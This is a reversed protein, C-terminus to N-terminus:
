KGQELEVTLCSGSERQLRGRFSETCYREIRLGPPWEDVPWDAKRWLAALFREPEPLEKWVAPLFTARTGSAQVVLGDRGPVLLHILEQRSAVKLPELRGILSVTISLDELERLELPFFRPDRFAAARVNEWVDEALLRRPELSGMCGRLAGARELTVFCAGPERLFWPLESPDPRADPDFFASELSRAAWKLVVLGREEGGAQGDVSRANPPNSEDLSSREM